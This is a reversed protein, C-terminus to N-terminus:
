EDLKLYGKWCEYGTLYGFADRYEKQVRAYDKKLMSCIHLYAQISEFLKKYSKKGYIGKHSDPDFLIIEKKRFLDFPWIGMPFPYVKDSKAPFLWGNATLAYFWKNKKKMNNYILDVQDPEKYAYIECLVDMDGTLEEAPKLTYGAKMIEANKKEPDLTCLYKPGKLFDEVAMVVLQADDYRYRLTNALIRKRCYMKMADLNGDEKYLANVIMCNRVDYYSLSSARKNEFGPSWVCIGNMLIFGNKNRLGYETDDNHIFLPLPLNDMTAVSLPYCAYWWAAYDPYDMTENMLVNQRPRLDLGFYRTWPDLGTWHSGAEHSAYPIDERLMAGSICAKEWKPSVYSLLAYTRVLADTEMRADDDMFIMHTLGLEDKKKNIEILGRTFGGSGGANMNPYLYIHDAEIEEKKLTKGNDTVFVELHGYVPSEPNELLNKKLLELNHRVYPERRFTCIDCAIRVEHLPEHETEFGGGLLEADKEPKFSFWACQSNERLPVPIHYEKVEDSEYSVAGLTGKEDFFEATFSGKVNLKLAFSRIMTYEKWKAASLINFYTDFTITNGERRFYLENVTCTEESPFLLSQILM